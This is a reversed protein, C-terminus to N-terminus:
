PTVWKVHRAVTDIKADFDDGNAVALEDLWEGAITAIRVALANLDDPTRGDIYLQGALHGDIRLETRIGRHGDPYVVCGNIAVDMAPVAVTFYPQSM